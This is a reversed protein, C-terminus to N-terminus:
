GGGRQSHLFGVTLGGTAGARKGGGRGGREAARRAAEDARAAAAAAAAAADLQQQTHTLVDYADDLMGGNLCLRVLKRCTELPVAEAEAADGEARSASPGTGTGAGTGGRVRGAPMTGLEGRVDNFLAVARVAHASGGKTDDVVGALVHLTLSRSLLGRGAGAGEGGEGGEGGGVGDAGGGGDGGDVAGSGSAGQQGLLAYLSLAADMQKAAFLADLLGLVVEEPPPAGLDCARRALDIAAPLRGEDVASGIMRVLAAHQAASDLSLASGAAATPALRSSPTSSPTAALPPHTLSPRAGVEAAASPKAAAGGAGAADLLPAAEPPEEEEQPPEESASSAAAALPAAPAAPQALPAAPAARVPPPPPPALPPLPPAASDTRPAPLAMGKHELLTRLEFAETAHGQEELASLLELAALDDGEVGKRRMRQLLAFGVDARAQACCSRVLSAWIEGHKAASLPGADSMEDFALSGEMPGSAHEGCASVFTALLAAGPAMPPDRAACMAALRRRAEALLGSASCLRVLAAALEKDLRVAAHLTLLRDADAAPVELWPSSSTAPAGLTLAASRLLAAPLSADTASGGTQLLLLRLAALAAPRQGTRCSAALLSSLASAEAAMGLTSMEELLRHAAEVAAPSSRALAARCQAAFVAGYAEASIATAGGLAHLKTLLATAKPLHGSPAENAVKAAMKNLRGTDAPVGQRDLEAQLTLCQELTGEELCAGQLVGLVEASLAMGAEKMTMHVAYASQALAPVAACTRVLATCAAAGLQLNADIADLFVGFAAEYNHQSINALVLKETPQGDPKVKCKALLAWVSMAHALMSPERCCAYLLGNLSLGSAVLSSVGHATQGKEFTTWALANHRMQACLNAVCAARRPDLPPADAPMASMVAAVRDADRATLAADLVAKEEVEAM